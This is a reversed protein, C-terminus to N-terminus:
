RAVRQTEDWVYADTVYLAGLTFLEPFLHLVDITAHTTYAM